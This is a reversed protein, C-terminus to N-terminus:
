TNGGRGLLWAVVGGAVGSVFANALIDVLVGPITMMTTTGFMTFDYSFGVLAGIMGGTIVGSSLTKISAWRGFILALLAGAGLNGLGIAWFVPPNRMVSSISSSQSAFFDMLLVGWILWGLLFMVVGGAIAPLVLKNANM